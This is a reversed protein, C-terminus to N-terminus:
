FYELDSFHGNLRKLRRFFTSRSMGLQELIEAESMTKRM